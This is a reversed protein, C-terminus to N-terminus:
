EFRFRFKVGVTTKEKAKDIIDSVNDKELDITKGVNNNYSVYPRLHKKIFKFIKNM